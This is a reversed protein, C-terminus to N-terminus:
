PPTNVSKLLDLIEKSAFAARVLDERFKAKRAKEDISLVHPIGADNASIRGDAREFVVGGDFWTHVRLLPKGTELNVLIPHGAAGCLWLHKKDPTVAVPVPGPEDTFSNWPKSEHLIKGTSRSVIQYSAKSAMSQSGILWDEEEPTTMWQQDPRLPQQQFATAEKTKLDLRILLARRDVFTFSGGGPSTSLTGSEPPSELRIDEHVVEWGPEQRISYLRATTNEEVLAFRGDSTFECRHGVKVPFGGSRAAVPEGWQHVRVGDDTRFWVKDEGTIGSFFCGEPGQITTSLQMDKAIKLVRGATSVILGSDQAFKVLVLHEPIELPPSVTSGTTLDCIQVRRKEDILVFSRGERTFSCRPPEPVSQFMSPKGFARIVNGKESDIIAIGEDSTAIAIKTGDDSWGMDNIRGAFPHSFLIGRTRTDRIEIERGMGMALKMSDGSLAIGETAPMRGLPQYGAAPDDFSAIVAGSATSLVVHNGVAKGWFYPLKANRPIHKLQKLTDGELAFAERDTMVVAISGDRLRHISRCYGGKEPKWSSLIGDDTFSVRSVGEDNALIISQDDYPIISHFSTDRAQWIVEGSVRDALTARGEDLFAIRSGDRNTVLSSDMPGGISQAQLLHGTAAEWVRIEGQRSKTVILKDGDTWSIRYPDSAGQNQVVLAAELPGLDAFILLVGCAAFIRFLTTALSLREPKPQTLAEQM